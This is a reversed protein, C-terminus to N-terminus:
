SAQKRQSKCARWLAALWCVEKRQHRHLQQRGQRQSSRRTIRLSNGKTSRGSSLTEPQRLLRPGVKKRSGTERLSPVKSLANNSPNNAAPQRSTPPQNTCPESMLQQVPQQRTTPPHNAPPQRPHALVTM